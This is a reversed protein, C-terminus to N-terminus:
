AYISLQGTSVELEGAVQGTDEAELENAGPTTASGRAWQAQEQHQDATHEGVNVDGLDIGQQALAERLQPIAQEVASRVAAQASVFQLQANQDVVKLEVLLPGLEAPNLQLSVRSDGRMVFSSVQQGLDNQWQPTALPATLSARVAPQQATTNTQLPISEVTNQALPKGAAPQETNISFSTEVPAARNHERTATAQEAVVNAEQMGPLTNSVGSNATSAALSAPTSSNSEANVPVMAIAAEAAEAAEDALTAIALAEETQLESAQATWDAGNLPAESSEGNVLMASLALSQQLSLGSLEADKVAPLSAIMDESFSASQVAQELTAAFSVGALNEGTAGSSTKEQQGPLTALLFQINM